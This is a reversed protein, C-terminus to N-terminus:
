ALECDGDARREHGRDESEFREGDGLRTRDNRAFPILDALKPYREIVRHLDGLLPDGTTYHTRRRSGIAIPEYM